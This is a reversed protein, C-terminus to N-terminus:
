QSPPAKIQGATVVGHRYRRSVDTRTTITPIINPIYFASGGCSDPSCALGLPRGDGIGIRIAGAVLALLTGAAGAYLQDVTVLPGFTADAGAFAPVALVVFSALVMLGLLLSMRWMEGTVRKLVNGM